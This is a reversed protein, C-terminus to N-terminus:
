DKEALDRCALAAPTYVDLAATLQATAAEAATVADDLDGGVTLNLIADQMAENTATHAMLIGDPGSVADLATVCVDPTTAEATDGGPVLALAAVTALAGVAGAVGLALAPVTTGRRRPQTPDTM